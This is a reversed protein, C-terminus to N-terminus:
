TCSNADRTPAWESIPLGYNGSIIFCLQPSKASEKINIIKFLHTTSQKYFIVKLHRTVLARRLHFPRWDTRKKFLSLKGGTKQFPLMYYNNQCYMHYQRNESLIRKFYLPLLSFHRLKLGSDLFVLTPTSRSEWLRVRVNIKSHGRAGAESTV